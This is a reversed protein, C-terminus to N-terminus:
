IHMALGRAAGEGHAEMAKMAARDHPTAFRVGMYHHKDLHWLWLVACGLLAILCGMVILAATTGTTVCRKHGATINGYQSPAPAPANSFQTFRLALAHNSDGKSAQKADGTIEGVFGAHFHQNEGKGTITKGAGCLNLTLMFGGMSAWDAGDLAASTATVAEGNSGSHTSALLVYTITVFQVRNAIAQALPFGAEADTDNPADTSTNLTPVTIVHPANGATVVTGSGLNTASDAYCKGHPQRGLSVWVAFDMSQTRNELDITVTDCLDAANSGTAFEGTVCASM